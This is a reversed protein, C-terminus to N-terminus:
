GKTVLPHRQSNALVMPNSALCTSLSYENVLWIWVKLCILLDEVSAPDLELNMRFKCKALSFNGNGWMTETKICWFEAALDWWKIDCPVASIIKSEQISTQVPCSRSAKLSSPIYIIILIKSCEFLASFNGLFLAFLEQFHQTYFVYQQTYAAYKPTYYENTNIFM